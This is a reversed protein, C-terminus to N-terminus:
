EHSRRQREQREREAREATLATTLDTLVGQWKEERELAAQVVKQADAVRAEQVANLQNTTRNLAALAIVLLAGPVSASALAQMASDVPTAAVQLILEHM